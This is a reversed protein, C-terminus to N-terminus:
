PTTSPEDDDDDEMAKAMVKLAQVMVSAGAFIGFIWVVMQQAGNM